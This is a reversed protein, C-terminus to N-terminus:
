FTKEKSFKISLKLLVIGVLRLMKLKIALKIIRDAQNLRCQTFHTWIRLYKQDTNEQIRVSYPFKRLLDGYETRICFFVSWFYNRVQVSKVCNWPFWNSLSLDIVLSFKGFKDVFKGVFIAHSEGM